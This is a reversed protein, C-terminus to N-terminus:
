QLLELIKSVLLFLPFRGMAVTAIERKRKPVRCPPGHEHEFLYTKVELILYKKAKTLNVQLGTTCGHDCHYWIFAISSYLLALTIMLLTIIRSSLM